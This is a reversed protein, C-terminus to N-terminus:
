VNQKVKLEITEVVAGVVMEEFDSDLVPEKVLLCSVPEKGM